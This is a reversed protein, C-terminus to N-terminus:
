VERNTPLTLHTYSVPVADMNSFPDVEDPTLRVYAEAPLVQKEVFAEFAQPTWEVRGRHPSFFYSVCRDWPNRVCCFKFVGDFVAPALRDRYEALSLHKHMEFHPSSVEFRDVGDHYPSAQVMRDESYPLLVRHVANGATKPVHVFLFRHVLSLM